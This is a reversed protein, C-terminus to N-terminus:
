YKKKLDTEDDAVFWNNQKMIYEYDKSVVVAQSHLQM